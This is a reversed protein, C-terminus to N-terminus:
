AKFKQLVLVMETYYHVHKHKDDPSPLLSLILKDFSYWSPFFDMSLFLTFVSSIMEVEVSTIQVHICLHQAVMHCEGM